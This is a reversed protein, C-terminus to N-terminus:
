EEEEEKCYMEFSSLAAGCVIKGKHTFMRLLGSKPLCDISWGSPPMLNPVSGKESWKYGYGGIGDVHIVDSGGSLRCIPTGDVVAVFDMCRYGSDHLPRSKGPLIILSNCIVEKGWDERFPLAEFEKRTMENVDKMTISEM